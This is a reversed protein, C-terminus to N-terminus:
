VDLIWLRLVASRASMPLCGGCEAKGAREFVRKGLCEQLDECVPGPYGAVSADYHVRSINLAGALTCWGLMTRQEQDLAVWRLNLFVLVTIQGRLGNFM